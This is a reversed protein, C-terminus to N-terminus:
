LRYRELPLWGNSTCAVSVGVGVEVGVGLGVGIGRKARRWRRAWSHFSKTSLQYSIATWRLLAAFTPDAERFVIVTVDGSACINPPLLRLKALASLVVREM